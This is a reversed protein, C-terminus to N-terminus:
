RRKLDMPKAKIKDFNMKVRIGVVLPPKDSNQKIIHSLSKNKFESSANYNRIVRM